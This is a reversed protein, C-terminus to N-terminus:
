VSETGTDVGKERKIMELLEKTTIGYVACYLIIEMATDMLMKQMNDPVDFFYTASGDEHELVEAVKITNRDDIVEPNREWIVGDISQAKLIEPNDQYRWKNM